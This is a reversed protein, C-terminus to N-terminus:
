HCEMCTLTGKKLVWEGEPTCGTDRRVCRSDDPSRCFSTLMTPWLRCTYLPQMSSTTARKASVMSLLLGWMVSLTCADKCRNAKCCCVQGHSLISTVAEQARLQEHCQM